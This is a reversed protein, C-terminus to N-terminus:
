HTEEKTSNQLQWHTNLLDILKKSTNNFYRKTRYGSVWTIGKIANTLFIEDAVLLNQPMINCEYVKIGNSIALNIIQMRMTGALCGDELGPTYLVGNSVVFLNAATSELIGGKDNSILLDGLGKEKAAISALVYILGNKTKFNSLSTKPKQHDMFLDIEIGKPNLVFQNHELPYVEILFEVENSEPRYTGGTARDLSIRCKGGSKIDSKQLLENIRDEFFPVDFFNPPRMMIKRAGELMRNVHNKLNIAKGDIIRISEFVGDGYLYGRNGAHVIPGNNAIISDNNNIYLM